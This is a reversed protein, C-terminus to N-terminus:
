AEGGDEEIEYTLEGLHRDLLIEEAKDKGYERVLRQREDEGLKQNVYEIIEQLRQEHESRSVSM